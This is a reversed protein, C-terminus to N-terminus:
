CIGFGHHLGDQCFIESANYHKFASCCRRKLLSELCHCNKRCPETYCYIESSLLVATLHVLSNVLEKRFVYM